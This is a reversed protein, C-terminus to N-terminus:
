KGAISGFIFNTFDSWEKKYAVPTKRSFTSKALMGDLLTIVLSALLSSNENIKQSTAKAEIMARLSKKFHQHHKYLMARIKKNKNSLTHFTSFLNALEQDHAVTDLYIFGINKILTYASSSKILAPDHEITTLDFFYSFISTLLEEKHKFYHYIAGKSLGSEKVVDEMSAESYGKQGFCTKAAKLILERNAM